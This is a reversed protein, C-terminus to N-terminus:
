SITPPICKAMIEQITWFHAKLLTFFPLHCYTFILQPNHLLPSKMGLEKSTTENYIKAKMTPYISAKADVEDLDRTQDVNRLDRARDDAIMMRTADNIEVLENAEGDSSVLQEREKWRKERDSLAGKIDLIWNDVNAYLSKM